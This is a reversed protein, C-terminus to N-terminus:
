LMGLGGVGFGRAGRGDQVEFHSSEQEDDLRMMDERNGAGNRRSEDHRSFRRYDPLNRWRGAKKRSM